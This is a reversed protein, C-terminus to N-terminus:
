SIFQNWDRFLHWPVASPRSGATRSSGHGIRGKDIWTLHQLVVLPSLVVVQFGFLWPVLWKRHLPNCNRYQFLWKNGTTRTDLYLYGSVGWCLNEVGSSLTHTHATHKEIRIPSVQTCEDIEWVSGLPSQSTERNSHM